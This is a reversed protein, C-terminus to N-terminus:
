PSEKWRLARLPLGFFGNQGVTCIGVCGLWAQIVLDHTDLIGPEGRDELYISVQSGFHLLDGERLAGEGIQVPHGGSDRYVWLSDQFVPFYLGPAVRELYRMIGAPGLYDVDMGMRRAGYVALGACDFGMREDAQRYGGATRGPAMLFPAGLVEMLYGAYTDGPRVCVQVISPFERQLPEASVLSDALSAGTDAAMIYFLGPGAPLPAQGAVFRLTCAEIQLPEVCYTLADTRLGSPSRSVDRISRPVPTVLLWQVSAPATIEVSDGTLALCTRGDQAVGNLDTRLTVAALVSPL